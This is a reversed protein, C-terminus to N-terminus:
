KNVMRRYMYIISILEEKNKRRLRWTTSNEPNEINYNKSNHKPYIERM